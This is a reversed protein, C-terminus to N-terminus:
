ATLEKADQDRQPLAPSQRASEAAASDHEDLTPLDIIFRSGKGPGDSEAHIHGGHQEIIAHSVALGLGMGQREGARRETFFPEFIHSLVQESMGRGNDTVTIRVWRGHTTVAITVIGDTTTADLANRVVNLLVQMLESESGLVAPLESQATWSLQRSRYQPLDGLLEVVRAVLLEVRVARHADPEGPRALTLLRTTIQKCRFAEEAIITLARRTRDMEADASETSGDLRRLTSEAYGAIIGLPNNIEHAIGAALLGVGALQESRLLQRTRTRVLEDLNQYLERLQEAMANFQLALQRFEYDGAPELRQAFNARAMALVGEQMARLPRMIGQYQRVGTVTVVVVAGILMIALLRGVHALDEQAAQRREVLQTSLVAAASAVQSLAANLHSITPETGARRDNWDMARRIEQGLMVPDGVVQGAEGRKPAPWRTLARVANDAQHLQQRVVTHDVDHMALLRATAAANGVEYYHRLQQFDEHSQELQRELRMLGWWGVGGLIAMVALLMALRLALKHALRM